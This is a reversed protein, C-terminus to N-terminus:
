LWSDSGLLRSVGDADGRRAGDLVPQRQADKTEKGRAVTGGDFAHGQGFRVRIYNIGGNPYLPVQRM